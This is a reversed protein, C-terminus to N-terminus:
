SLGRAPAAEILESLNLPATWRPEGNYLVVPLVPPLRGSGTLNGGRVLHQYLLGVYVSLRLAMWPDIASQFELVLYVYLWDGQFRARWVVDDARQVLGDSIFDGKVIELTSFDVQALWDEQVFGRLLDEVM